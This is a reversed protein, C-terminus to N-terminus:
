GRADRLHRVVAPHAMGSYHRPPRDPVEPHLKTLGRVHAEYIV